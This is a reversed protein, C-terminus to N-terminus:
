KQRKKPLSKRQRQKKRKPCLVELLKELTESSTGSLPEPYRNFTIRGVTYM